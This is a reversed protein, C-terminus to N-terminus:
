KKEPAKVAGTPQTSIEAIKKAEREAKKEETESKIATVDVAAAVVAEKEETVQATATAIVTDPGVFVKVDAPIEMDKIYISSGIATLRSLDAKLTPPLNVPLAEIEIEQMAKVLVGGQDKVAPAVGFFEVPVRVKIKEDMKIQYFDASVIDDTVPHYQVDHLLTPYNKADLIIQVVTNSGAIKLTKKLDKAPVAIHRNEVGRGYLEAPVLGKERLAKVGKGLKERKQVALDM